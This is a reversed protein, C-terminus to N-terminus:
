VFFEADGGVNAAFDRLDQVGVEIAVGDVQMKVNHIAVLLFQLVADEAVHAPDVAAVQGREVEEVGVFFEDALEGGPM